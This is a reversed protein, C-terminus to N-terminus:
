KEIQFEPLNDIELFVPTPDDSLQEQFYRIDARTILMFLTKGNM